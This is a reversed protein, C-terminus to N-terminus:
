IIEINLVNVKAPYTEMVEGTYSVKVNTGVMYLADNDEGLSISIKDSSNRITENEYPEVIIYSLESEVVTGYFYQEKNLDELKESTVNNNINELEDVVVNSKIDLQVASIDAIKAAFYPLEKGDEILFITFTEDVMFKRPEAPMIAAENKAMIGAESKIRGGKEDLEFKITQLATEISYPEGNSFSFVKNELETFEEESLMKELTGNQYAEYYRKFNSEIHLYFLEEEDVVQQINDNSIKVIECDKIIQKTGLIDLKKQEEVKRKTLEELAATKANVKRKTEQHIKYFSLDLLLGFTSSFILCPYVILHYVKIGEGLKTAEMLISFDGTEIGTILISLLAVM